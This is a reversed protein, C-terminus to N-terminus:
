LPVTLSNHIKYFDSEPPTPAPTPTSGPVTTPSPSPTPTPTPTPSLPLSPAIAIGRGSTTPAPFSLNALFSTFNVYSTDVRVPSEPLNVTRLQSDVIAYVVNTSADTTMAWVLSTGGFWCPRPGTSPQLDCNVDWTGTILSTFRVLYSVSGSPIATVILRGSADFTMGLGVWYTPSNAAHLAIQPSPTVGAGLSLNSLNIPRLQSNAFNSAPYVIWVSGDGRVAMGPSQAALQGVVAEDGSSFGFRIVYSAGGGYTTYFYGDKYILSSFVGVATTPKAITRIYQPTSAPSSKSISYVRGDDTIVYFSTSQATGNRPAIVIACVILLLRCLLVIRSKM